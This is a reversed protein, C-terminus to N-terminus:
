GGGDGRDRQGQRGHGDGPIEPGGDVKPQGAEAYRVLTRIRVARERGYRAMCAEFQGGCDMNRNAETWQVSLEMHSGSMM